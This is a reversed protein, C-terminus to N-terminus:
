YLGYYVFTKICPLDNMTELICAVYLRLTEGSEVAPWSSLHWVLVEFGDFDFDLSPINWLTRKWDMAILVSRCYAGALGLGSGIWDL